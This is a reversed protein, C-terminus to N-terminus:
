EYIEGRINLVQARAENLACTESGSAKGQHCVNWATGASTNILFSSGRICASFGSTDLFLPRATSMIITQEGCRIACRLGFPLGKDIGVSFTAGTAPLGAGVSLHPLYVNCISLTKETNHFKPALM